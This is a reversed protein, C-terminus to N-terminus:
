SSSGEPRRGLLDMLELANRPAAAESDNDFFIYVDAGAGEWNRAKEAWAELSQRNYSSAYTRTHGHLRVYALGGTMRDWVPWDAADSIVNAVGAAQLREAVSDTFWSTHRLEIAHRVEPWDKLESLFADLREENIRASDPLQWLMVKLKSGLPAMDSKQRRLSEGVDKLRKSHTIYRHGKAAFHFGEPVTDRWKQLTTSAPTRYHTGNLEIATMRRSIFELWQRQPTKGYFSEKWHRYSWGSTGIRIMLGDGEAGPM